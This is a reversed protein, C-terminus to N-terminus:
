ERQQLNLTLFVQIHHLYLENLEPVGNILVLFLVQKDLDVVVKHVINEFTIVDSEEALRVSNNILNM